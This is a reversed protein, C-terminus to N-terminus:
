RRFPATDTFIQFESVGVRTTSYSGVRVTDGVTLVAEFEGAFDYPTGGPDTFVDDGTDADDYTFTVEDTGLAYAFTNADRDVATVTGQTGADAATAARPSLTTTFDSRPGHGFLEVPVSSLDDDTGVVDALDRSNVELDTSHNPYLASPAQEHVFPVVGTTANGSSVHFTLTRNSASGVASRGVSAAPLAVGNVRDVVAGGRGDADAGVAGPDATHVAGDTPRPTSSAFSVLTVDGSEGGPGPVDVGDDVTVEEFADPAVLTIRYQRGDSLGTVAYEADRSTQRVLAVRIPGTSRNNDVAVAPVGTQAFFVNLHRTLFAAMQARTVPDGPRFSGAGDGQVVGAAALTRVDLNDADPFTVGAGPAPFATTGDVETAIAAQLRTLFAAMQQRTILRRPGYTEEDFGRVIGANTLGQIAGVAEESPVEDLDRFGRPTEDLTLGALRAQRAVFVAMQYRTVADRPSYTGRRTADPLTTGQTIDHRRLCDAGLVYEAPQGAMDAFSDTSSSGPACAYDRIDQVGTTREASAPSALLAPVTLAAVAAAATRPRLLTM